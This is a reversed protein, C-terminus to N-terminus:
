EIGQAVFSNAIAAANAFDHPGRKWEELKAEALAGRGFVNSSRVGLNTAQHGM